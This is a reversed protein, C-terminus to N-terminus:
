LLIVTGIDEVRSRPNRVDLADDFRATVRPVPMKEVIVLSQGITEPREGPCSVVFQGADGM